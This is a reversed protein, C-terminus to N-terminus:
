DTVPPDDLAARLEPEPEPEAVTFPVALDITQDGLVGNLDLVWEGPPLTGLAVPLSRRTGALIPLGPLIGTVVSGEPRPADHGEVFPTKEAGPHADKPWVAFHGRTRVHANGESSLDLVAVARRDEAHVAVEHLRGKRTVDGAVGYVAVGYQFTVAVKEQGPPPVEKLFIMARHEGPEPEVRPRIAFRIAQSDGGEITFRLPNLVIWQDLSQETPEVVRVKNSEDLDFTLVSVQVTMPDSGLNFVRISEMKPESGIELEFRGPSIAVQAPPMPQEARAASALSVGVLFALVPARTNM